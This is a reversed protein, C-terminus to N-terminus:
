RSRHYQRVLTRRYWRPQCWFPLLRQTFSSVADQTCFSRPVWTPTLRLLGDGADMASNLVASVSDGKILGEDLRVNSM